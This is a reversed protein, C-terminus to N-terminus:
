RADSDADSDADIDTDADSDADADADIDADTDPDSDTDPDPDSDCDCDCDLMSEPDVWVRWGRVRWASEQLGTTVCENVFFVRQEVDVIGGTRSNSNDSILGRRAVTRYM